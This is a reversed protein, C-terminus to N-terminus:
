CTSFYKPSSATLSPKMSSKHIIQTLSHATLPREQCVSSYSCPPVPSHVHCMSSFSARIHSSYLLRSNPFLLLTVEPCSFLLPTCSDKCFVWHYFQQVLAGWARGQRDRFLSHGFPLPPWTHAPGMMPWSSFPSLLPPSLPMGLIDPGLVSQRGADTKEIFNNETIIICHLSYIWICSNFKPSLLYLHNSRGM